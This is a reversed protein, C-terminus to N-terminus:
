IDVATKVTTFLKEEDPLWPMEVINLIKCYYNKRYQFYRFFGVAIRCLVVENRSQLYMLTVLSELSALCHTIVTTGHPTPIAKHM